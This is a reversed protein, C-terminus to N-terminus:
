RGCHDLDRIPVVTGERRVLVGDDNDGGRILAHRIMVGIVARHTKGRPCVM